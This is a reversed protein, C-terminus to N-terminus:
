GRAGAAVAAMDCLLFGRLYDVFCLLRDGVPVVADTEWRRMADAVPLKGDSVIPVAQNLVWEHHGLRLVCLEATDRPEDYSVELHAVLLDGDGNGRRLVGAGGKPLRRPRSRREGDVEGREYLMPVYCGPLLSLSPPRAAGDGSYYLFYDTTVSTHHQEQWRNRPVKTMELLVSDGHAAVVRLPDALDGDWGEWGQGVWDYYLSSSAPPAALLFSVRFRRGTSTCSAVADKAQAAISDRRCGYYNLLVWRPSPGAAAALVSPETAM